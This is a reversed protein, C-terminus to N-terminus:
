RIPGENGKSIKLITSELENIDKRLIVSILTMLHHSSLQGIHHKTKASELARLVELARSRFRGTLMRLDKKFIAVAEELRQIARSREFAQLPIALEPTSSVLWELQSRVSELRSEQRVPEGQFDIEDLEGMLKLVLARHQQLERSQGTSTLLFKLRDALAEKKYRLLRSEKTM